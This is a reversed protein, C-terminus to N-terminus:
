PRGGKADAEPKGALSMPQRDRPHVRQGNSRLSPLAAADNAGPRTSPALETPVYLGVSTAPCLREKRRQGATPTKGGHNLENIYADTLTYVRRNSNGVRQTNDVVDCSVLTALTNSVILDPLKTAKAIAEASMPLPRRHMLAAVVTGGTTGHSLPPRNNSRAAVREPAYLTPGSAKPQAYPPTQASAQPLQSIRAQRKSITIAGAQPKIPVLTPTGLETTKM